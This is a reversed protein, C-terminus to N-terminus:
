SVSKAWIGRLLVTLCAGVFACLWAPVGAYWVFALALVAGMAAATAYMSEEVFLAMDGLAVDRVFGGTLAALLGILLSGTLGTGLIAAKVAGIGSSLALGLTDMWFFAKWSARSRAFLDGLLGGTVVVALYTGDQIAVVAGELLSDRLLPASLGVVCALVAGGTFHAGNARARCSASSALAMCAALDMLIFFQDGCM